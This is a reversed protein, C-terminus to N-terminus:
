FPIAAVNIDGGDEPWNMVPEMPRAIEGREAAIRGPTRTDRPQTAPATAGENVWKDVLSHLFVCPKQGLVVNCQRCQYSQSIGQLIESM